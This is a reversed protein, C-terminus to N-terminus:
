FMSGLKQKASRSVGRDGDFMVRDLVQEMIKQSTLGFQEIVKFFNLDNKLLWPRYPTFFVLAVADKSRKLAEAVTSALKIHESHNFLLDALIM